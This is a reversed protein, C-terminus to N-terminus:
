EAAEALRSRAIRYVRERGLMWVTVSGRFYPAFAADRVDLGGAYAGFAPLIARAGDAIFCRRRVSRGRRRVSACPHLHGAIEGAARGATPEHRFVVAGLALTEAIRGGLDSPPEPDHNGCIWIWEHASTLRRITEITELALREAAARDHFSDGLAIVRAPRLRAIAEDLRELTASTDYPPLFQGRAAFASGKELHLDAVILTELQPWFLAGSHDAVLAEGALDIAASM